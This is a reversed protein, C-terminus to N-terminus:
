VTAPILDTNSKIANGTTQSCRSSIAADLYLDVLEKIAVVDSSEALQVEAGAFLDVNGNDGLDLEVPTAETRMLQVASSNYRIYYVQQKYYNSASFTHLGPGTFTYLLSDDAFLRMEAYDTNDIGRIFLSADPAVYTNDVNTAVYIKNIIRAADATTTSIKIKMYFGENSDYGTLSSLATSLNSGNLTQFAGYTGSPTRVTFEFSMSTPATTTNTNLIGGETYTFGPTANQFSTVGHMAFSSEIEAENGLGPMEIGGAQDFQPSNIGETLIIGTYDGFPGCVISGTTPTLGLDILNAFAYTDAGAMSTNMGAGTSPSLDHVNSKSGDTTASGSALSLRCNLIKNAAQLQTTPANLVVTTDRCNSLTSNYVEVTAGNGAAIIGSAANNGNYNMNYIAINSSAVDADFAGNRFSTVGANTLGIIKINQASVFAALNDNITTQQTTGYEACHELNTINLNSVGTFEIRAGVITLNSINVTTGTKPLLFTLTLAEDGSVTRGNKRAFWLDSMEVVSVANSIVNKSNGTVLGSTFAAIKKLTLDGNISSISFTVATTTQQTDPCLAFGQIDVNSNTASCAWGACMGVNYLKTYGHGSMSFYIAESCSVWEFDMTGTPSFDLLTRSSPTNNNSNSHLYINPIRVKAGSPISKGNTNNGCSLTRTSLNWFLVRGDDLGGFETQAQVVTYGATPIVVWPMYTNSGSATEVEVYSPYPITNLPSSSFSFTQTTGNGTGIQIPAGRCEMIGNKEFRFDKTNGSLTLVIPTTTSTNVIRLKGSTSCILSGPLTALKTVDAAVQADITLIAGSTITIDEAAIYTVGNINTDTSVTAM